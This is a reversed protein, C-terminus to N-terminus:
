LRFKVALNALCSVISSHIHVLLALASVDTAIATVLVLVEAVVAVGAVAVAAAGYAKLFGVEITPSAVESAFVGAVPNRGGDLVQSDSGLVVKDNLEGPGDVSTLKAIIM